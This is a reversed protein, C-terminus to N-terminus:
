TANNLEKLQIEFTVGEDTNYFYIKGHLKEDIIMKTMYLGLGTGNKDKKTSFYPDFIKEQIDEAIGGANDKILLYITNERNLLEIEIYKHEKDLEILADKANNIINLIAQGLENPYGHSYLKPMKVFNLEISHNEYINQTIDLIHSIVDNVCFDQSKKEAKFFNRFDDITKSMHKIQKQSHEKFTMVTKDDLKGKTYKSILLQNALSLNNLPQRWQHAIMAIMEGMQALRSQQLLLLQQEKNKNTEFSIKTELTLLNRKREEFLVGTIFVMSIHALIFLNYNIINDLKNNLHFVGHGLYVSYSSVLALVISMATGYAFGRYSVVFVIFPISISLLLLLNKMELIIELFYIISAFLFVYAFYESWHITKYNIFTLLLFPTFLLQGMVNGFWWSFGSQLYEKISIVDSMLLLTNSISASILQIFIIIGILYFIDRFTSLNLNLKFKKFLCYGLLAEFSNTVAIGVSVLLPIDNSYALFFQGIFIGTWVKKGFFLIFGLAIGEAAFIGMNIISCGHLFLLSFKGAIFYLIALTFSILLTNIIEKNM